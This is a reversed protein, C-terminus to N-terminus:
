NKLERRRGLFKPFFMWTEQQYIEFHAQHSSSSFKKEEMRAADFYIVTMTTTALIVWPDEFTLGISLYSLLYTAYFPHRMWRYLGRRVITRPIDKSYVVTFEEQKVISAHVWFVILCIIQCLIGVQYALATTDARFAALCVAWTLLTCIRLAMYKNKERNNSKKFVGIVSWLFSLFSACTLAFLLM